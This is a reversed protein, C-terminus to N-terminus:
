RPSLRSPLLTPRSATARQRKRGCGGPVLSMRVGSWLGREALPSLETRPLLLQTWM